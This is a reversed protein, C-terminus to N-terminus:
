VGIKTNFYENVKPIFFVPLWVLKAIRYFSGAIILLTTLLSAVSIAQLILM